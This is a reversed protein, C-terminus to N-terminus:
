KQSTQQTGRNVMEFLHHAPKPDQKGKMYKLSKQIIIIYGSKENM